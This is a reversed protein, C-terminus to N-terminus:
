VMSCANQIFQFASFEGFDERTFDKIPQFPRPGRRGRPLQLDSPKDLPLNLSQVTWHNEPCFSCRLDRTYLQRLLSVCVKLLHSWMVQNDSLSISSLFSQSGGSNSGRLITRYHDNKVKRREPFALEVLGLTIDKLLASICIIETLQFPMIKSEAGPLIDDQCFEGDHLNVILRSFLTCFTALIPIVREIDNDALYCLFGINIIIVNM